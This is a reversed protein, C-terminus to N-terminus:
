RQGGSSGGEVTILYFVLVTSYVGQTNRAIGRKEISAFQSRFGTVDLSSLTKELQQVDSMGINVEFSADRQLYKISRVDAGSETLYDDAVKILEMANNRSAIIESIRKVKNVYTLYPVQERAVGELQRDIVAQEERIEAAQTELTANYIRLGLWSVVVLILLGAAVFLYRRDAKEQTAVQRRNGELFNIERGGAM